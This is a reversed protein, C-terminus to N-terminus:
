SLFNSAFNIREYSLTIEKKFFVPHLKLKKVFVFAADQKKMIMKNKVEDNGIKQVSESETDYESFASIKM